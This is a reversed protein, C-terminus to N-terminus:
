NFDQYCISAWAISHFAFDKNFLAMLFSSLGQPRLYSYPAIYIIFPLFGIKMCHVKLHEATEMLNGKIWCITIASLACWAEKYYNNNLM